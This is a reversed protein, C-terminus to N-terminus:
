KTKNKTFLLFQHHAWFRKFTEPAHKEFFEYAAFQKEMSPEKGSYYDLITVAKKVHQVKQKPLLASLHLKKLFDEKSMGIDPWLPCDIYEHNLLSWGLSKMESKIRPIKIFDENLYKKLDDQGFYKQQIYGIGTQNPVMILIVKRTVRDLEKLFASLDSVFWLASFNWSLDFYNDPRDIKLYDETFITKLDLNLEKWTKEIYEIRKQDHDMLTVECAKLAYPVSNIGSMGTFGFSPAELVTKVNFHRLAKILVRNIMFREYTSGLGEDPNSYYKEWFHLIPIAM